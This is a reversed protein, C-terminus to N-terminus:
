AEIFELAQKCFSVKVNQNMNKKFTNLIKLDQIYQVHFNLFVQFKACYKRHFDASRAVTCKNERKKRNNVIFPINVCIYFKM